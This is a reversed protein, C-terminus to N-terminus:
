PTRLIEYLYLDTAAGADEVKDILRLHIRDANDIRVASFVYSAGLKLLTPTDIDLNKVERIGKRKYLYMEDASKVITSMLEASLLTPTSGWNDYFDKLAPSKDLERAIVPRFRHKYELPYLYMLSDVTQFGNMHATGPYFGFCAIRFFQRPKGVRQEALDFLRASKFQAFSPTGKDRCALWDSMLYNSRIQMVFMLVALARFLRGKEWMAALLFYFIVYILMPCFFYLRFQMSALFQFKSSIMTLFPVLYGVHFITYLWVGLFLAFGLAVFPLAKRAPQGVGLVFRLQGRKLLSESALALLYLGLAYWFVPFHNAPAHNRDTYIMYHLAAAIGKMFTVPRNFEVRHWVIADPGVFSAILLRNAYWVSAAMLLWALALLPARNGKRLAFWAWVFPLFGLFYISSRTFESYFPFLAFLAVAAALLPVSSSGRPRVLVRAAWVMLPLGSVSLGSWQWFPVYAFALSAGWAAMLCRYRLDRLLLFMGMFAILRSVLDHLRVAWYPSLFSFYAGYMKPDADFAAKPLGGLLFPYVKDNQNYAYQCAARISFQHDYTDDYRVHANEGLIAYPLEYAMVAFIGLLFLFVVARKSQEVSIM